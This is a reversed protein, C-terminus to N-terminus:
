KVEKIEFRRSTSSKLCSQYINPYQEKLRKSDVRNSSISKWIVVYNDNEAKEADEMYLKIKQEIEKKEQDLKNQLELIERRRDLAKDFGSLLISKEESESFKEKIAQEAAESGDPNPMQRKLVNENWFKSEIQVLMDILEEDREIKQWVFSKGLIVCAIYWAKAGTVAMYHHCQIEYEPPIKGDSWKDVSYASATKCELGADEGVLLRDVNAFMYPAEQFYFIANAKRVKKGTEEMFREAVYQELDRGQRMAESDEKTDVKDSTKDLYVSIASRYKNMGCIAGADSGGIGKKRYALWEEYGLENTNVLRNLKM